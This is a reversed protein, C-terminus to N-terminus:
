LVPGHSALGPTTTDEPSVPIATVWACGSVVLVCVMVCASIMRSSRIGSKDFMQARGPQNLALVAVRDRLLTWGKGTRLAEVIQNTLGLLPIKLRNTVAKVLGSCDNQYIDSCAECNERVSRAAM